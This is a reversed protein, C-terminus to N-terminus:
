ESSYIAQFSDMFKEHEWARRVRDFCTSIWDVKNFGRLRGAPFVFGDWSM